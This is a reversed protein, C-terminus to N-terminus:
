ISSLVGLGIVRSVTYFVSIKHHHPLNIQKLEALRMFFVIGLLLNWM